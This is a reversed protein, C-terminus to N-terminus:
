PAGASLLPTGAFPTRSRASGAERGSGRARPWGWTLCPVRADLGVLRELSVSLLPKVFFDARRWHRTAPEGHESDASCSSSPLPSSHPLTPPDRTRVRLNYARLLLVSTKISWESTRGGACHMNAASGGAAHSARWVGGTTYAICEEKRAVSYPALKGSWPVHAPFGEVTARFAALARWVTRAEAVLRRPRPRLTPAPTQLMPGARM